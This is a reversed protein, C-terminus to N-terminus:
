LLPRERLGQQSSSSNMSGSMQAFVPVALALGAIAGLALKNHM